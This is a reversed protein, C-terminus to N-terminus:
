GTPGPVGPGGDGHAKLGFGDHGLLKGGHTISSTRSQDESFKGGGISKVGMWLRSRLDFALGLIM